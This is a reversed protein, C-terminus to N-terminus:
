TDNEVKEELHQIFESLFSFGLTSILYQHSKRGPVSAKTTMNLM